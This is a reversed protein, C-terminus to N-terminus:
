VLRARVGGKIVNWCYKATTHLAKNIMLMKWKKSTTENIEKLKWYQAHILKGQRDWLECWCCLMLKFCYVQCCSLFYVFFYVVFVWPSLKRAWCGCDMRAFDRQLLATQSFFGCFHACVWCVVSIRACLKMKPNIPSIQQYLNCLFISISWGGAALPVCSPVQFLSVVHRGVTVHKHRWM